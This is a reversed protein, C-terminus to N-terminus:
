CTSNVDPFDSDDGGNALNCDFCASKLSLFASGPACLIATNGVEEIEIRANNCTAWCVAPTSRIMRGSGPIAAALAIGNTYVVALALISLHM